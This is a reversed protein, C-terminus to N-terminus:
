AAARIVRPASNWLSHGHTDVIGVENANPLREAFVLCDSGCNLKRVLSLWTQPAIGNEVLILRRSM